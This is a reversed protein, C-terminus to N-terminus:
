PAGRGVPQGAAAARALRGFWCSRGTGRRDARGALRVVRRAAPCGRDRICMESGVLSASM